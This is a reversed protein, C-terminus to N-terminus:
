RMQFIGLTLREASDVHAFVLFDGPFSIDHAFGRMLAPFIAQIHWFYRVRHSM